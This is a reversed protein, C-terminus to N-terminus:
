LGPAPQHRLRELRLTEEAMARGMPGQKPQARGPVPSSAAATARCESLAYKKPCPVPPNDDPHCTCPGDKAGEKIHREAIALASAITKGLKGLEEGSMYENGYGEDQIRSLAEAVQQWDSFLTM